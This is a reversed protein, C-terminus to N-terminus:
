FPLGVCSSEKATKCVDNQTLLHTSPSLLCSVSGLKRFDQGNARGEVKCHRFYMEHFNREQRESRRPLCGYNQSDWQNHLSERVTIACCTLNLIRQGKKAENLDGM